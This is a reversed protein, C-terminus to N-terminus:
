TERSTQQLSIGSVEMRNLRSLRTMMSLTVPIASITKLYHGFAYYNRDDYIKRLTSIKDVLVHNDCGYILVQDKPNNVM